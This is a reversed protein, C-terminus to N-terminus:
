RGDSLERRVDELSTLRGALADERGQMIGQYTRMERDLVRRKLDMQADFASADMVVISTEGNRSIYIPERTERCLDYIGNINRQLDSAPKVIPM